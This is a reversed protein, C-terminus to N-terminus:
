TGQLEDDTTYCHHKGRRQRRLKVMNTAPRTSNLISAVVGQMLHSSGANSHSGNTGAEIHDLVRCQPTATEELVLAQQIEKM